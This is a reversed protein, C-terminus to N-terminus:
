GLPAIKQGSEFFFGRRLTKEQDGMLAGIPALCIEIHAFLESPRSGSKRRTIFGAGIRVSPEHIQLQRTATEWAVHRLVRVTEGTGRGDASWLSRRSRLLFFPGRTAGSHCM